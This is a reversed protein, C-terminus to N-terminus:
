CSGRLRGRDDRGQIPAGAAGALLRGAIIGLSDSAVSRVPLQKPHVCPPTAPGAKTVAQRWTKEFEAAEVKKGKLGAFTKKAKSTPLAATYKSKGGSPLQELNTGAAPKAGAAAGVDRSVATQPHGGNAVLRITVAAADLLTVGKEKAAKALVGAGSPDSPSRGALERLLPPPVGGKGGAWLPLLYCGTNLFPLGIPAIVFLPLVAWGVVAAKKGTAPPKKTGPEPVPEGVCVEIM